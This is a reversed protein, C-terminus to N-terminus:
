VIKLDIPDGKRYATAQLAAVLTGAEDSVRITYTALKRGRSVEVAEATLIGTSAAALYAISVNAGVAVTGHSNSAAAFAVDALAFIAGGHAIALNNHLEPRLILRTTAHGPGVDVVEIGLLQALPDRGFYRRATELDM